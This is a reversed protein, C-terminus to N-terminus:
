YPIMALELELMPALFSYRKLRLAFTSRLVATMLSVQFPFFDKVECM